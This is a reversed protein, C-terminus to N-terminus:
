LRDNSLMNGALELFNTSHSFIMWRHYAEDIAADNLEERRIVSGPSSSVQNHTELLDQERTLKLAL